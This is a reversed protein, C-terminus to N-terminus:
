WYGWQGSSMVYLGLILNAVAHAVICAALSKTRVALGYMLTGFVFAPLYDVTSHVLTFAATVVFYSRWNFQGFPVKWYDGDMDVIYRMLFGRWFLEEAFPVIVVMRVFRMLVAAWYLGASHDSIFEPNFGENREAFGLYRLVGESMEFHRFLYGPAIWVAIGVVGVLTAVGFGRCPRFEYEQRFYILVALVLLTQLPYLWQEPSTVYWPQNAAEADWGLMPLLGPIALCVMFAALPAVYAAARRDSERDISAM